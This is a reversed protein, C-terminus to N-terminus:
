AVSVKAEKMRMISSYLSVLGREIKLHNFRYCGITYTADQTRLETRKALYKSEFTLYENTQKQIEKIQLCALTVIQEELERQDTISYRISFFSHALRTMKASTKQTRSPLNHLFDIKLSQCCNLEDTRNRRNIVQEYVELSNRTNTRFTTFATKTDRLEKAFELYEDLFKSKFQIDMNGGFKNNYKAFTLLHSKQHPAQQLIKM